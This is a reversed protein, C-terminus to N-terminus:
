LIEDEVLALARAHAADFPDSRTPAAPAERVGGVLFFGSQVLFFGWVALAVSSDSRGLLSTALALGGGTLLLEFAWARAPRSEYLLGSRLFSLIAALALALGTLSDTVILAGCALLGALLAAGIGGARRPAIGAVYLPVLAALYIGRATGLGLLPAALLLFPLYAAAAVAAFGLSRPFSNCRM